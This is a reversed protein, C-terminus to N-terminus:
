REKKKNSRTTTIIRKNKQGPRHGGWWGHRQAKLNRM